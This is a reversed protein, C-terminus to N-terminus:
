HVFQIPINKSACASLFDSFNLKKSFKVSFTFFFFFVSGPKTGMRRLGPDTKFVSGPM